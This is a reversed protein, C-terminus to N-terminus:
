GRWIRSGAPMVPAFVLRTRRWARRAAAERRLNGAFHPNGELLWLVSGPVQKLIACGAGRLHGADAQLQPQFQLLCLRKGAPRMRRPQSTEAIARRSDNVQYSDPLYVVQETYFQREEEPIVIRDAIIYDMYPAGLTGSLGSLQGPRARAPPRFVGM